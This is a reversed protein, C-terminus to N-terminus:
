PAVVTVDIEGVKKPTETASYEWVIVKVQTKAAPVVSAGMLLLSPVTIQQQFVSVGTGAPGAVNRNTFDALATCGITFKNNKSTDLIRTTYIYLSDTPQIEAKDAAVVIENVLRYAVNTLAEIQNDPLNHDTALVDDVGDVRPTLVWPYTIDEAM